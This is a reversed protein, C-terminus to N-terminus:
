KSVKKEEQHANKGKYICIGKEKKEMENENEKFKKFANLIQIQREKGQFKEIKSNMWIHIKRENSAEM